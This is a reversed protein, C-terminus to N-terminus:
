IKGATAKYLGIKNIFYATKDSTVLKETTLLSEKKQLLDLNSIVGEKYKLNTYYFDKQEANYSELTKEYKQYDLKLNCLADNVEQLAVIDAQRYCNLMEEYQIKKLKLYDRLYEYLKHFIKLFCIIM